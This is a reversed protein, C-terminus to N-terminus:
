PKVIGAIVGNWEADSNLSVIDGYTEVYMSIQGNTDLADEGFQWGKTLPTGEIEFDKSIFVINGSKAERDMVTIIYMGEYLQVDIYYADKNGEKTTILAVNDGSQANLDELISVVDDVSMNINFAAKTGEVISDGVKFEVLSIPEPTDGGLEVLEGNEDLYYNTYESGGVLTVVSGALPKGYFMFKKDPDFNTIDSSDDAYFNMIYGNDTKKAYNLTIM